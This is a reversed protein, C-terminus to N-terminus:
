GGIYKQYLTRAKAKDNEGHIITRGDEFIVFRKDELQLVLLYPNEKQIQNEYRNKLDPLSIYQRSGPRVQVADRGCLVESKARNEYQLFPYHAQEGCSPCDAKKLAEVQVESRENSWLDFSLLTKRSKDPQKTLIKMAETTQHSSVMQVAPAIIGVTDCTEGDLPIDEMLCHLCASEGPLITYTLGYSGVCAGYVWPIGHKQSFDNLLMRTDFNDLADIMVDVSGLNELFAPDAEGIVAEITIESNVAELREKAARAKPMPRAADNETYLQQRNLNSYEVYDRDIITIYGVGARALTEAAASGLAGAGVILVHKDLLLKQGDRGIGSFMTQRSYRNEM